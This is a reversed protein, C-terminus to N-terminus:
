GPAYEDLKKNLAGKTQQFTMELEAVLSRASSLQNNRGLQELQTALNQLKQAGVNGSSSKLSHIRNSIQM